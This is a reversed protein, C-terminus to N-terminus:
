PLHPSVAHDNSLPHISLLSQTEEKKKTMRPTEVYARLAVRKKDASQGRLMALNAKQRTGMSSELYANMRKYNVLGNRRSCCEKWVYSPLTKYAIRIISIADFLEDIIRPDVVNFNADVLQRIDAQLGTLFHKKYLNTKYDYM